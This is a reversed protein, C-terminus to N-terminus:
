ICPWIQAHYCIDRNLERLCIERICNQGWIHDEKFQNATHEIDFLWFAITDIKSSYIQCCPFIDDQRFRRPTAFHRENRNMINDNELHQDVRIMINDLIRVQEDDIEPIDDFIELEDEYIQEDIRELPRTKVLQPIYAQPTKYTGEPVYPKVIAVPKVFLKRKVKNKKIEFVKKIKAMKLM